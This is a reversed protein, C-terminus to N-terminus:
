PKMVKRILSAADAAADSSTGDLMMLVAIIRLILATRWRAHTMVGQFNQPMIKNGVLPLHGQARQIEQEGVKV